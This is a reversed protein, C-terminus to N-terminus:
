EQWHTALERLAEQGAKEEKFKYGCNWNYVAVFRCDRLRLTREFHEIWERSKDLRRTTRCAARCERGKRM